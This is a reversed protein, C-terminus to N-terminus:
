GLLDRVTNAYEARNLRRLVVRGEAARRAVEATGARESIWQIVTQVEHAPPRPKEKPPMDGSKLQELVALWLERNRRDSYDETLSEMQFDGKHKPGSHCKQCHETFLKRAPDKSLEGRASAASTEAAIAGSGALAIAAAWLISWKRRCLRFKSFCHHIQATAM